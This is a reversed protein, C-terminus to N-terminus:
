RPEIDVPDEIVGGGRRRQRPVRRADDAEARRQESAAATSEGAQDVLEAQRFGGAGRIPDGGFVGILLSGVTLMRDAALVITSNDCIAAICVTM